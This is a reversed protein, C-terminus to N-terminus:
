GAGRVNRRDSTALGIQRASRLWCFLISMMGRRCQNLWLAPVIHLTQSAPPHSKRPNIGQAHTQSATGAVVGSIYSSIARREANKM